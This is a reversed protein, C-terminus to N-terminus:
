AVRDVVRGTKGVHRPIWGAHDSGAVGDDRGIPTRHEVLPLSARDGAGTNSREARVELRQTVHWFRVDRGAMDISADDERPPGGVDVIGFALQMLPVVDADACFAVVMGDIGAFVRHRRHEGDLEALAQGPTSSTAAGSTDTANGRYRDRENTSRMALFM